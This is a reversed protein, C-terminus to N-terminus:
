CITVIDKIESTIPKVLKCRRTLKLLSAGERSSIIRNMTNYVSKRSVGLVKSLVNITLNYVDSNLLMMLSFRKLVLDDESRSM